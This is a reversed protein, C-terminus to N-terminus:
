LLAVRYVLLIESEGGRSQAITSIAKSLSKALDHYSKEFADYTAQASNM